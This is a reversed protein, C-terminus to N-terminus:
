IGLPQQLHQQLSAAAAGTGVSALRIAPLGHAKASVLQGNDNTVLLVPLPPAGGAGAAAKMLEAQFYLAVQPWWFLPCLSLDGFGEAERPQLRMPCLIGSAYSCHPKSAFAHALWFTGTSKPPDPPRADTPSVLVTCTETGM